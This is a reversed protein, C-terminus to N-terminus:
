KTSHYAHQLTVQSGTLGVDHRSDLRKAHPGMGKDISVGVSHSTASRDVRRGISHCHRVVAVESLDFLSLHSAIM